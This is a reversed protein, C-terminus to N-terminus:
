TTSPKELLSNQLETLTSLMTEQWSTSPISGTVPSWRLPEFALHILNKQSPYQKSLSEKTTEICYDSLHLFFSLVRNVDQIQLKMFPEADEKGTYKEIVYYNKYRAKLPRYLIAMMKHLQQNVDSAHALTEMDAIEGITLEDFHVLGYDVGELHITKMLPKSQDDKMMKEVELWIAGWQWTKLKKLEEIPAKSLISIVELQWQKDETLMLKSIPYYQELTITDIKYTQKDIQFEIM